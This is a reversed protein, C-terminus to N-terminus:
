AISWKDTGPVGNFQVEYVSATLTLVIQGAITGQADYVPSFFQGGAITRIKISGAATLLTCVSPISLGVGSVTETAAAMTGGVGASAAVAGASTVGIVQQSVSVGKTDTVKREM